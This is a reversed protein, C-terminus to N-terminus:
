WGHRSNTTVGPHLFLLPLPLPDDLSGTSVITQDKKGQGDLCNEEWSQTVVWQLARHAFLWFGSPCPHSFPAGESPVGCGM